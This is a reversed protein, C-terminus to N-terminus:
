TLATQKDKQRLNRVHGPFPYFYTAPVVVIVPNALYRQFFCETFFQPGTANMVNNSDQSNFTPCISQVCTDIIPHGPTAAILANNLLIEKGHTNKINLLLCKEEYPRRSIIWRENHEAFSRDYGSAVSMSAEFTVPETTM